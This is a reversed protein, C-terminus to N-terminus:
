RCGGPRTRPPAAAARRGLQRGDLYPGLRQATGAVGPHRSRLLATGRVHVARGELPAADGPAGRRLPRQAGQLRRGVRLVRVQSLRCGRGPLLSGGVDPQTHGGVQGAAAPESLPDRQHQHRAGSEDHRRCCGRPRRLPRPEPPRRDRAMPQETGPTRDARDRALRCKRRSGRPRDDRRRRAPRHRERQGRPISPHLAGNGGQIAPASSTHGSCGLSAPDCLSM